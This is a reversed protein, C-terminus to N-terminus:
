AYNKTDQMMKFREHQQKPHTTNNFNGDISKADTACLGTNSNCISDSVVAKCTRKTCGWKPRSQTNYLPEALQPKKSYACAIALKNNSRGCIQHACGMRLSKHYIMNAFPEIAEDTYMADRLPLSATGLWDEFAYVYAQRVHAKTTGTRIMAANVALDLAMKIEKNIRCDAIVAYALGVLVCDYSMAFLNRTGNGGFAITEGDIMAKGRAIGQRIRNHLELLLKGYPDNLNCQSNVLICSSLLLLWEFIHQM